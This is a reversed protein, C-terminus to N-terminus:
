RKKKIIRKEPTATLVTNTIKTFYGWQVGIVGDPVVLNHFSAAGKGSKVSGLGSFPVSLFSFVFSNSRWVDKTEVVWSVGTWGLRLCFLFILVTIGFVCCLMIWVAAQLNDPHLVPTVIESAARPFVKGLLTLSVPDELEELASKRGEYPNSRFFFRDRICM